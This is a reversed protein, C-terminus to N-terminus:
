AEFAALVEQPSFGEALLGQKLKKRADYLLKYLANRNSKMRRAVEELPMGQIMTATLAQRQRDTLVNTMLHELLRILDRQTIKKEPHSDPAPLTEAFVTESSKQPDLDQLAINQWRKRRLETLAVHVAIKNSWTIFHSRGQFTDLASLIKLLAEQAFDELDAETVAMHSALAYRLGRVLSHRLEALAETNEPSRLADLWQQNTRQTLHKHTAM